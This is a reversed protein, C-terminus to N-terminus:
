EHREKVIYNPYTQRVHDKYKLYVNIKDHVSMNETEFEILKHDHNIDLHISFRKPIEPFIELTKPAKNEFLVQESLALPSFNRFHNQLVNLRRIASMERIKM